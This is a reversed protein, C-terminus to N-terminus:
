KDPKIWVISALEKRFEDEMNRIFDMGHREVYKDYVDYDLYPVHNELEKKVHEPIERISNFVLYTHLIATEEKIGVHTIGPGTLKYFILAHKIEISIPSFRRKTFYFGM